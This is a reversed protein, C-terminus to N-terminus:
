QVREAERQVSASTDLPEIVTYGLRKSYNGASMPNKHHAIRVKCIVKLGSRLQLRGRM